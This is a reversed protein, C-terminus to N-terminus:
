KTLKSWGQSENHGTCDFLDHGQTDLVQGTDHFTTTTGNITVHVLPISGSNSCIDGRQTDSTDFNDGNGGFQTLILTKGAPLTQNGWLDYHFTKGTFAFDGGNVDVTVHINLSQATPNDIRIAGADYGCPNSVSTSTQGVFNVNSSGQWPSPFNAVTGVPNTPCNPGFTHFSDAYGVSVVPQFLTVDCQSQSIIIDGNGLLGNLAVHIANVTISSGAPSSTTTQQDLYITGIGPLPISTNAPITGNILSMGAIALNVVSATGTSGNANSACSSSVADVHLIPVLLSGINVNAVSASSHSGVLAAPTGAFDGQTDANLVGVSLLNPVSASLASEPSAPTSSSGNPALVVPTPIPGSTLNVLGLIQSVNVSEGYASGSVSQVPVPTTASASQLAGTSLFGATAMFTTLGTAAVLRTAGTLRRGNILRPILASTGAIDRHVAETPTAKAALHQPGVRPALHKPVYAPRGTLLEVVTRVSTGKRHHNIASDRPNHHFPSAGNCGQYM